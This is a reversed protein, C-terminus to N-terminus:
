FARGTKLDNRVSADYIREQVKRGQKDFKNWTVKRWQEEKTLNLAKCM